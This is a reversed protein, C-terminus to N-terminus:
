ELLNFPNISGGSRSFGRHDPIINFSEQETPRSILETALARRGLKNPLWRPQNTTRNCCNKTKKVSKGALTGYEKNASPISSNINGLIRNRRASPTGFHRYNPKSKQEDDHEIGSFMSRIRNGGYPRHNDGPQRTVVATASSAALESEHFANIYQSFENPEEEQVQPKNHFGAPTKSNTQSGVIQRRRVKLEAGVSDGTSGKKNGPENRSEHVGNGTSIKSQFYEDKLSSEASPRNEPDWDILIRILHAVKSETERPLTKMIALEIQNELEEATAGPAPDVLQFNLKNMRRTGEAWETPPGLVRMM